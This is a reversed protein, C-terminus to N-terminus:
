GRNTAAEVILEPFSALATEEDEYVEFVTYLKTMLLLDKIRKTLNVLKIQGGLNNITAFSSVLAGIGSSDLYTLEALNLLIKKHGVTAMERLTDRLTTVGEGLTVRGSVDVITIGRTVRVNMKVDM